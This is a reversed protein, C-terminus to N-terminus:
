GFAATPNGEALGAPKQADIFRRETAPPVRPLQPRKARGAAVPPERFGVDGLQQFAARALRPILLEALQREGPNSTLQVPLPM